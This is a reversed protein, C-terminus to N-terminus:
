KVIYVNHKSKDVVKESVSGLVLHYLAGHGHSGLVIMLPDIREAEELIVMSPIGDKTLTTCMVDAAEIKSKLEGIFKESNEDLLEQMPLDPLIMEGEYLTAEPVYQVVNILTISAELAKALTISEEIVKDTVESFDVAVLLTKM